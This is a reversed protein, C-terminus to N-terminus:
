MPHLTLSYHLLAMEKKQEDTLSDLLDRLEDSLQAGEVQLKIEM